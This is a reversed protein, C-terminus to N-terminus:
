DPFLSRRLSLLIDPRALRTDFIAALSMSAGFLRDEVPADPGSSSGLFRGASYLAADPLELALYTDSDFPSPEDHSFIKSPPAWDKKEADWEAVPGRSAASTKLRWRTDASPEQLPQPRPAVLWFHSLAEASSVRILHALSEICGNCFWSSRDIALAPKEQLSLCRAGKGEPFRRSCLVCVREHQPQVDPTVRTLMHRIEVVNNPGVAHGSPSTLCPQLDRSCRPQFHATSKKRIAMTSRPARFKPMSTTGEGVRARSRFRAM